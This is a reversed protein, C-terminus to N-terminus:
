NARILRKLYASLQKLDGALRSTTQGALDFIFEQASREQVLSRWGSSRVVALQKVQIVFSKWVPGARVQIRIPRKNIISFSHASVELIIAFTLEIFISSYRHAEILM